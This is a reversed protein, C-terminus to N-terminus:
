IKVEPLALPWAEVQGREVRYWRPRADNALVVRGFEGGIIVGFARLQATLPHQPWRTLLFALVDDIPAANALAARLDSRTILPLDPPHLAENIPAARQPEYGALAAFRARLKDDSMLYRTRWGTLGMRQDLHLPAAGEDRIRALARSAGLLMRSDRRLRNYLPAIERVAAHHDDAAARRMRTIRAQARSFGHHLAGHAIFRREGEDLTTKLSDLRQEMEGQPSVLDRLPELHREWLRRVTTFRDVASVNNLASRLDGAESVVSERNGESLSRVRAVLGDLDRLALAAASAEGVRVAKDLERGTAGIEDLYGRLVIASSKRQRRTLWGILEVVAQGLEFSADAHAAREIIGLEEIQRRLHDITPQGESRHRGILALLDAEDVDSREYLTIVLSTHDALFRFFAQPSTAM